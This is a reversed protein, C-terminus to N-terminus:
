EGSRQCDIVRDETVVYHIKEDWSQLEWPDILVQEEFCVGIRIGQFSSLFRDYFGGGRGIRIGSSHFVLGPIVVTDINALSTEEDTLDPILFGLNSKRMKKASYFNMATQNEEIHPYAFQVHLDAEDALTFIQPESKMAHFIGCTKSKERLLGKLNQAIRKSRILVEAASLEKLFNKSDQRLNQQQSTQQPNLRGNVTRESNMDQDM